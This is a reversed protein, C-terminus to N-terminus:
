NTFHIGANNFALLLKMFDQIDMKAARQEAFGTDELIKNVYQKIEFEDAVIVDNQAAWTRYNAECMEYVGGAKFSAALTKNKRSFCIRVMGDWEAFNVPPPPQIPEVRVVSSEVQPPPRFNNKGVKMVHEIKAYLQANVSLRCYLADGPKAVLRLAFERQFMLIACRFLPRHALLKFTLASSIQYPTNSVCVDFYPLDVKLFDGVIVELKRQEPTGQVRKTLEAAMRPDMESAIVKKCATLMRVTINGTGPGIELVTDTPKLGAKDVIGQAVLPNKLIHQGLDKNLLPGLSKAAQAQASERAGRTHTKSTVKPM